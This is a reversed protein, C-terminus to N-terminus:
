GEHSRMLGINENYSAVSKSFASYEEGASNALNSRFAEGASNALDSYFLASGIMQTARAMAEDYAIQQDEVVVQWSDHSADNKVDDDPGEIIQTGQEEVDADVCDEEEKKAADIFFEEEEEDTDVFEEEEKKAADIVFEEEEEDDYDYDGM